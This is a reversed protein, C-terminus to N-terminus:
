ALEGNRQQATHMAGTAGMLSSVVLTGMWSQLGMDGWAQVVFSLIAAVTAFAVIRDVPQTSGRHVGLAVFVGVPFVAWLASFGLWGAISLLWLVSNHAIFRYQAFVSDVRYAQVVENYEHGFGSGLLPRAKLTQVLNYNEIDRTQSSVDESSSMERLTAVPGFIAANSHWGVAVYLVGVPVLVRLSRKLLTRLVPPGLLVLTLLGFALAVLAIRRDNVLLGWALVPQLVLNMVVHGVRPREVLAAVGILMAVVSLIADSHTMAYEIQMGGPKAIANAFYIGLLCRLWAVLMVIRLLGVRAGATKLAHGFLVGLLPLWFLQRIQWLSNRFDGGRALGYVELWVMAAFYVGFAVKMPNPLAGLGTPDDLRDGRLKRVILILLLGGALLELASVRLADIGTHRHLNDYLLSGMGSLPSQWLGEHPREGPNDVLLAVGLLVLASVQMRTGLLVVVGVIALMPALPALGAGLLVLGFAAATAPWVLWTAPRVRDYTTVSM